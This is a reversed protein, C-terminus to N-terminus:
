FKKKEVIDYLEKATSEYISLVIVTNGTVRCWLEEDVVYSAFANAEDHNSFKFEYDNM